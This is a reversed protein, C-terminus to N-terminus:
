GDPRENGNRGGSHQCDAVDVTGDGCGEAKCLQAFAVVEGADAGRADSGIGRGRTVSHFCHLSFKISEDVLDTDVGGFFQKRYQDTGEQGEGGVCRRVLVRQRLDVLLDKQSSEEQSFQVKGERVREHNIEIHIRHEVCRGEM